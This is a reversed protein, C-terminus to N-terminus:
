WLTTKIIHASYMSWPLTQSWTIYNTTLIDWNGSEGGTGGSKTGLCKRWLWRFLLCHYNSTSDLTWLILVLLSISSLRLQTNKMIITWVCKKAWLFIPYFFFRRYYKTRYENIVSLDVSPCVAIIQPDHLWIFSKFIFFVCTNATKSDM